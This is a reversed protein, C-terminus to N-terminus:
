IQIRPDQARCFRSTAQHVAALFGSTRDYPFFHGGPFERAEFPGTTLERWRSLDTPDVTRDDRGRAALIPCRLPPGPAHRHDEYAAMDARLAPLLLALLEPTAKVDDPIGGYRADVERVFRHDPLDALRPLARRLHPAPTASVILLEPAAGAAQMARAVEYALLGGFSHGLLATPGPPLTQLARMTADVLARTDRLPPEAFAGERGPRHVPCVAVGDPLAAAWRLFPTAGAGAHAFCLLRLRAGPRPELNPLWLSPDM